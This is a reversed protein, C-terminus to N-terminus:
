QQTRSTPIAITAELTKLSADFYAFQASWSLAPSRERREPSSVERVCYHSGRPTALIASTVTAGL